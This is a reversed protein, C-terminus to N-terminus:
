CPNPPPWWLSRTRSDATKPQILQSGVVIGGGGGIAAAAIAAFSQGWADGAALVYFTRASEKRQLFVILPTVQQNPTFGFAFVNPTCPEAGPSLGAFYAVNATAIAKSCAAVGAASEFGIIVVVNGKSGVSSCAGAAGAPTEQRRRVIQIVRNAWNVKAQSPWPAGQDGAPLRAPRAM